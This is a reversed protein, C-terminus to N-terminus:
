ARIEMSWLPPLIPRRDPTGIPHRNVRGVADFAALGEYVGNMSPLFRNPDSPDITLAAGNGLDRSVRLVIEAHVTSAAALLALAVSASM